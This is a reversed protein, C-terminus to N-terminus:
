PSMRRTRGRPDSPARGVPAVDAGDRRGPDAGIVARAWRRGTVEALIGTEDHAARQAASEGIDPAGGPLTWQGTDRRRQLLIAAAAEEPSPAQPRQFASTLRHPAPRRDPPHHLRGPRPAPERPQM